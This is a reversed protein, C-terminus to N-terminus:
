GLDLLKRALEAAGAANSSYGDAGIEDAFRQTMPAGGVIVKVEARCGAEDLCRIVEKMNVMTTTLLASLGVIQAGQEQAALVFRQAPVSTGLDFVEFGAGEMMTAVLNKGIDHLDGKVTGLVVRGVPQHTGGQALLPKLLESAGKMAKAALLVEPIYYEGAQMKEGVTTMAPILAGQFIDHPSLGQELARQSLQVTASADGRIVASAISEAIATM